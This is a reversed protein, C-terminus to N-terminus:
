VTSYVTTLCSENHTKLQGQEIKAEGLKGAKNSEIKDEHKVQLILQKHM